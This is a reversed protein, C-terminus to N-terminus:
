SRSEMVNSTGHKALCSPSAVPFLFVMENVKHSYASMQRTVVVSLISMMVGLTSLEDYVLADLVIEPTYRVSNMLCPWYLKKLFLGNFQYIVSGHANNIVVFRKSIATRTLEM